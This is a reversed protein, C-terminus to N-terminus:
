SSAGERSVFTIQMKVVENEKEEPKWLPCDDYHTMVAPHGCGYCAGERYRIKDNM